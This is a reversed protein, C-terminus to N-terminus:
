GAYAVTAAITWEEHNIVNVDHRRSSGWKQVDNSYAEESISHALNCAEKLTAWKSTSLWPHSDCRITFHKEQNAVSFVQQNAGPDSEVEM